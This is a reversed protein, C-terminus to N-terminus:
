TARGDLDCIGNWKIGLGFGVCETKSALAVQKQSPPMKRVSTLSVKQPGFLFVDDTTTM